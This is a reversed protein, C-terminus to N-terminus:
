NERVCSTRHVPWHQVQCSQSCYRIAMCRGCQKRAHDHGCMGCERFVCKQSRLISPRILVDAHASALANLRYNGAIVQFDTDMHTHGVHRMSNAAIVAEGESIYNAVDAFGRTRRNSAFGRRPRGRPQGKQKDDAATHPQVCDGSLESQDEQEASLEAAATEAAPQQSSRATAAGDAGDSGDAAGSAGAAAGGAGGATAAAAEETSMTKSTTFKTEIQIDRNDHIEDILIGKDGIM